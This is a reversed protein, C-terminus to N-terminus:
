ASSSLRRRPMGKLLMRFSVGSGDALNAASAEGQHLEAVLRVVFLGLGLHPAEQSPAARVSVLSHFLRENMGDPLAPGSNDVALAAGEELARLQVRILGDPQAFSRANAILKDLAQVILDPAGHIRVASAPVDLELKRPAVLDRYAEVCERILLALDFDEAEAMQIAHEMRQAESMARLIGALREAGERARLAYKRAPPDLQEHELNDLSSRVITLPTALEHSLKSALSKLYENHSGIEKLLRSFSRALDGLDDDADAGPLTVGLREHTPQAREAANRLRRIRLSLRGAYAVLLLVAILVAAVSAAMVGFVAQNALVLLAESETELVLAARPQSGAGVPVAATVVMSGSIQAPRVGSAGLGTLAQWVLPADLRYRGAALGESDEPEPALLWGYLRSTLRNARAGGSPDDLGGAQAIVWGEASVLRLRANAPAMQALWADLTPRVRLLTLAGDSALAVSRVRGAADLDDLTLSLAHIPALEDVRLEVRWGGPQEQWEGRLTPALEAAPTLRRQTLAGGAANALVWDTAGGASYLTLRLADGRAGTPDDVGVAVRTADRVEIALYLVGEAEGARLSLAGGAARLPDLTQPWDRLAGDLVPASPLAAVYLSPAASPLAAGSALLARAVTAATAVQAQEQGERLLAEIQRVLQWGGLPLALAAALILVLTGRLRLM